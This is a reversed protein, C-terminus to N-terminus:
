KKVFEIDKALNDNATFGIINGHKDRNFQFYGSHIHNFLDQMVPLYCEFDRGNLEVCLENETAGIVYTVDWEESYYQGAYQSLNLSDDKKPYIRKLITPSRGVINVIITDEINQLRVQPAGAFIFEKNSTAQLLSEHGGLRAYFLSDKRREISRM